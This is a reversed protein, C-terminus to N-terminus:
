QRKLTLVLTALISRSLLMKQRQSGTLRSVPRERCHQFGHPASNSSVKGLFATQDISITLISFDFLFNWTSPPDSALAQHFSLQNRQCIGERVLAM